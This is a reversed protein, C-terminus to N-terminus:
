PFLSARLGRGRTRFNLDDHAVGDIGYPLARIDAISVTSPCCHTPLRRDHVDLTTGM